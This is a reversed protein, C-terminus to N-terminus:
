QCLVLAAIGLVIAMVTVALVKGRGLRWWAAAARLQDRMRATSELEAIVHTAVWDGAIADQYKLGSPAAILLAGQLGHHDFLLLEPDAGQTPPVAQALPWLDICVRAERDLLMPHGDALEGGSIYAQARPQCRRGTWREPARNHPVVLLYDLVFAARRLLQSLEPLLRLLQLRVM